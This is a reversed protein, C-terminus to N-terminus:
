LGVGIGKPSSHLWVDFFLDVPIQSLQKILKHELIPGGNGYTSEWFCFISMKYGSKSLSELEKKKEAIRKLIWKIHVRFDNSSSVDKTGLFWGSVKAKRNSRIRDGVRQSRDPKLGLLNTIEKPDASNHYICLTAYTRSCGGSKKQFRDSYKM